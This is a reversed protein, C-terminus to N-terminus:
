TKDEQTKGEIRENLTGIEKILEGERKLLEAKRNCPYKEVEVIEFYDIGTENMFMHLKSAEPKTKAYNKHKIFRKDLENITSGIYIENNKSNVIKYFKSNQYNNIGETM